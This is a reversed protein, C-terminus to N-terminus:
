GKLKGKQVRIGLAGLTAVSDSTDTRVDLVVHEISTLGRIIECVSVLEAAERAGLTTRKLALTKTAREFRYTRAFYGQDVSWLVSLTPPSSQLLATVLPKWDRLSSSAGNVALSTLQAAFPTALHTRWALTATDVWANIDLELRKLNPFVESRFLDSLCEDTAVEGNAKEMQAIYHAGGMTLRLTQLQARVPWQTFSTQLPIVEGLERVANLKPSLLLEANEGCDLLEVSSWADSQALAGLMEGKKVSGSVLAGDKYKAGKKLISELDPAGTQAAVPPAEKKTAKKPKVTANPFMDGPDMPIAVIWRLSYGERLLDFEREAFANLAEAHTVFEAVVQPPAGTKDTGKTGQKNHYAAMRYEHIFRVQDVEPTKGCTVLRTGCVGLSVSDQDYGLASGRTYKRMLVAGSRPDSSPADLILKHGLGARFFADGKKAYAKTKLELAVLEKALREDPCVIVGESSVNVRDERRDYNTHQVFVVPGWRMVLSWVNKGAFGLTFECPLAARKFYSAYAERKMCVEIATAKPHEVGRLSPAAVPMTIVLGHEETGLLAFNSQSTRGM